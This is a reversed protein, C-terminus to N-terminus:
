SSLPPSHDGSLEDMEVLPHKENEPCAQGIEFVGLVEFMERWLEIEKEKPISENFNLSVTMAINKKM